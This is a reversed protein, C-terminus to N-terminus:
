IPRCCTPRSSSGAFRYTLRRRLARVARTKALGPVGEILVHGGALLAIVLRELLRRQGVVQAEMRDILRALGEQASSTPSLARRTGGPPDTADDSTRLDTLEKPSRATRQPENM